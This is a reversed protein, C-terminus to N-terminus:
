PSELRQTTQIVISEKKSDIKGRNRQDTAFRFRKPGLARELKSM